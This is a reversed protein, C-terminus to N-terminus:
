LDPVALDVGAWTLLFMAMLRVLLSRKLCVVSDLVSSRLRM